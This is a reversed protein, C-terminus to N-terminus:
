RAPGLGTPGVDLRRERGQRLVHVQARGGLREGELRGEPGCVDSSQTASSAPPPGTQAAEGERVMLGELGEPARGKSRPDGGLTGGQQRWRDSDERTGGLGPEERSSGLLNHVSKVTHLTGDPVLDPRWGSAESGRGRTCTDGDPLGPHCLSAIPSLHSTGSCNNELPARAGGAEPNAPTCLSAWIHHFDPPQPRM